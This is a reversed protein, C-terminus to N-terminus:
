EEQAARFKPLLIGEGAPEFFYAIQQRPGPDFNQHQFLVAIEQAIKAAIGNM